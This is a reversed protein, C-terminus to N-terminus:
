DARQMRVIMRSDLSKINAELIRFVHGDWDVLRSGPTVVGTIDSKRLCYSQNHNIAQGEDYGVSQMIYQESVQFAADLTDVIQLSGLTDDSLKIQLQVQRPHDWIVWDEDLDATELNNNTV